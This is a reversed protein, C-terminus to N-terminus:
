WCTVAWDWRWVVAGGRGSGRGCGVGEVVDLVWAGSGVVRVVGAGVRGSGGVGVVRRGRRGFTVRALWGEWRRLGEEVAWREVLRGGGVAVWSRGGVVLEGRWGVPRGCYAGEVAVLSRCVWRGSGRICAVGRGSGRWGVAQWPRGRRRGGRTAGEKAARCGSEARWSLTSIINDRLPRTERACQCLNTIYFAVDVTSEIEADILSYELAVRARAALSAGGGTAGRLSVVSKWSSWEWCVVVAAVSTGKDRGEAAGWGGCWLWGGTVGGLGSCSGCRGTVVSWVSPGARGRSGVGGLRRGRVDGPGSIREVAGCGCGWGRTKGSAWGRTRLGKGRSGWVWVGGEVAKWSVSRNGAGGISAALWRGVGNGHGDMTAAGGAVGVPGRCLAMCVEGRESGSGGFRASSGAGPRSPVPTPFPTGHGWRGGGVWRVCVPGGLADVASDAMLVLVDGHCEGQQRRDADCLGKGWGGGGRSGCSLNRVAGVPRDRDRSCEVIDREVAGGGCGGVLVGNGGMRLERTAAGGWSVWVFLGMGWCGFEQWPVSVGGVCSRGGRGSGRWGGGAVSTGTAVSQWPRRGGGGGRGQGWSWEWAVAGGAVSTGTDVRGRGSVVVVWGKKGSGSTPLGEGVWGGRSCLGCFVWGGAVVVGLVWRVGVMAVGWWRVVGSAGGVAKGDSTVTAVGGAAGSVVAVM